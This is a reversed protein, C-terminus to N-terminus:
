LFKKTRFAVLWLLVIFFEVDKMWFVEQNFLLM